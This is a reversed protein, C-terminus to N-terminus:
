SFLNVKEKQIELEFVYNQLVRNISVNVYYFKFM